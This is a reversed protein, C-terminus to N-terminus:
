RVALKTDKCGATLCDIVGDSSCALELVGVDGDERHSNATTASAGTAKVGYDSIAIARAAATRIGIDATSATGTSPIDDGGTCIVRSTNTHVV